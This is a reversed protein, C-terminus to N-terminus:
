RYLNGSRMQPLLWSWLRPNWISLISSLSSPVVVIAERLAVGCRGVDMIFLDARGSSAVIVTPTDLVARQTTPRQGGMETLIIPISRCVPSFDALADIILGNRLSCAASLCAHWMGVDWVETM